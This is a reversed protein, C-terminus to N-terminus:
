CERGGEKRGEKRCVVFGGKRKKAQVIRPFIIEVGRDWHVGSLDILVCVSM